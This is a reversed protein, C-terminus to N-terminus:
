RVDTWVRPDESGLVWVSYGRLGYKGVLAFKAAFARADELWLFENVGANSWFAYGAKERDDWTIQAHNKALLSEAKAFSIDSGRMRAGSKKDYSPYWWDSYSPIGLSIKSPPVGTSLVFQLAEEMWTYGAVPGPPTGGTHQAYTMYSIFDLADALAKYDYVGRWNDFIWRHYSTPGPDDSTRPVVAASVSCNVRHLGVAADRMFSTLADKDKVHVNEIDFQIGDFHNDRCLSVLNDLARRRAEANTLLRHISPQDFGPNMVLPVLKVGKERAKAVVRPDVKGRIVGFGDLSFVQPSVISIKDAHALFSQTSAEGGVSYWLAETGQALCPSALLLLGLAAERQRLL